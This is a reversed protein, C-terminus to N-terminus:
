AAQKEMMMTKTMQLLAALSHHTVLVNMSDHQAAKVGRGEVLTKFAVTPYIIGLADSGSAM